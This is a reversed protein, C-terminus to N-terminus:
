WVRSKEMVLFLIWWSNIFLLLECIQTITHFKQLIWLRIKCIMQKLDNRLTHELKRKCKKSSILFIQNLGFPHMRIIRSHNANVGNDARNRYYSYYVNQKLVTYGYTKICINLGVITMMFNWDKYRIKFYYCVHVYIYIYVCMHYILSLLNSFVVYHPTEYSIRKELYFSFSWTLSSSIPLAHLV